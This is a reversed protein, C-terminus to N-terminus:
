SYLIFALTSQDIPEFIKSFVEAERNMTLLQGGLTFHYGPSPIIPSWYPHHLCIPVQPELLAWSSPRFFSLIFFTHSLLFYNIFSFMIFNLVKKFASHFSFDIHFPCSSNPRIPHKAKDVPLSSGANRLSTKLCGVM